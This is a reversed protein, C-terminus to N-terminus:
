KELKEIKELRRIHREEGSFETDLWKKMVAMAHEESLHDAALSLVNTNDDKMMSEAAGINYGIGCKVGKIKNVAICVGIGNRCIVIGRGKEAVVKKGLPIVFDPYDDNPDHELPGVDEIKINLENEGYRILRKKLNYGGHDSAIYLKGNYM